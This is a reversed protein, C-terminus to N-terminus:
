ERGGLWGIVQLIGWLVAILGLFLGFCLLATLAAQRGWFLLILGIGVVLGILLGGIILERELRGQYSRSDTINKGM